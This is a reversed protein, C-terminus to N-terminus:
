PRSYPSLQRRLYDALGGYGRDTYHIGDPGVWDPHAALEAPWDPVVLAGGAASRLAAAREGRDPAGADPPVWWLVTRAGRNTLEGVMEPVREGFADPAPGPNTGFGVLVVPPVAELERVQEIGWEVPEGDRAVIEPDWGGAVLTDGLDGYLRAGVTLSDGLVLLPVGPVTAESPAQGQTAPEDDGGGCAAVFTSALVLALSM